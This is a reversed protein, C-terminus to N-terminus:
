LLFNDEKATYNAYNDGGDSCVEGNTMKWQYKM